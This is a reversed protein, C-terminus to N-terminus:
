RCGGEYLSRLSTVAKLLLAAHLCDSVTEATRRKRIHFLPSEKIILVM